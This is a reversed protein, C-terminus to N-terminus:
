KNFDLALFQDTTLRYRKEVDKPDFGLVMAGVVLGRSILPACVVWFESQNQFYLRDQVIKKQKFANVAYKYKSFDQEQFTGIIYKGAIASKDRDLVGIGFRVPKGKKEAELTFRDLAANIAKVDNKTVPELLVASLKSIEGKVENKFLDESSNALGKTSCGSGVKFCVMWLIVMAAAFLLPSGFSKRFNMKVELSTRLATRGSIAGGTCYCPQPM